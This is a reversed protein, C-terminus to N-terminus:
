PGGGRVRWPRQTMSLAWLTDPKPILTITHTYPSSLTCPPPCTFPHALIHIHSSTPSQSHSTCTHPSKYTLTYLYTYATHPASQPTYMLHTIRTNHSILYIHLRTHTPHPYTLHPGSTRPNTRWATCSGGVAGGGVQRWQAAKQKEEWNWVETPEGVHPQGRGREAREWRLSEWGRRKLKCAGPSLELGGVVDRGEKGTVNQIGKNMRGQSDWLCALDGAWLGLGETPQRAKHIDNGGGIALSVGELVRPDRPNSDSGIGPMVQITRSKGRM